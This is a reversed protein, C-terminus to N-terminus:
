FMLYEESDQDRSNLEYEEPILTGKGKSAWDFDWDYEWGDKKMRNRFIGRLLDYDPKDEMKLSRCHAFYEAFEPPSSALLNQMAKGEKMEGLRKLKAEISTAYVGQWPLRGHLLFLLVNGLGLM